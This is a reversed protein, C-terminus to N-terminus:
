EGGGAGIVLVVHGGGRAVGHVLGPGRRVAAPAGAEPDPLSATRATWAAAAVALPGLGAHQGFVGALSAAPPASGLAAALIHREWADRLADGNASDYLWGIDSPALGARALSEAVARSAATRGVGHPRVPLSRWDASLIEGLVRAGRARAAALPELVLFAAGEGWRATDGLGQMQEHVLDVLEDVGGALAAPVRGAAVAAAAQGVALHGAVTPADLTLAMERARVAITASAAMTNMVTNPFLLASLGAAGGAVYGDAFAITSRFDGLETGLVLGVPADAPLAADALALRAAAVTLQCVRSLRRGEDAGILRALAGAEVRLPGAGTSRRADALHAQLVEAGGSFGATVAGVGTLAVRQRM